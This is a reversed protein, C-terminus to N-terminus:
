YPNKDIRVDFTCVFRGRDAHEECMDHGYMRVRVGVEILMSRACRMVRLAQWTADSGSAVVM